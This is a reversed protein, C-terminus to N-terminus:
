SRVTFFLYVVLIGGTLVVLPGILKQLISSEEPERTLDNRFALGEDKQTATDRSLRHFTGVIEASKQGADTVRAELDISVTRLFGQSIVDDFRVYETLVSLSLLMDTSDPAQNVFTRCGKRSLEQIFANEVMTASRQADVVIGIRCGPKLKLKEAVEGALSQFHKRFVMPTSVHQLEQACVRGGGLLTAMLVAALQIQLFGM